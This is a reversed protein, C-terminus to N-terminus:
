KKSGHEGMAAALLIPRAWAAMDLGAIRAAEVIAEKQDSTVPIRLDVDKRTSKEKPPRGAKKIKMILQLFLM